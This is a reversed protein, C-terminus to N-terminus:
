RLMAWIVVVATSSRMDLVVWGKGLSLHRCFSSQKKEWAAKLFLAQNSGLRLDAPDWVLTPRGGRGGALVWLGWMPGDVVARISGSAKLSVSFGPEQLRHCCYVSDHGSTLHFWGQGNHSKWFSIFQLTCKLIVKLTQDARLKFLLQEIQWLLIYIGEKELLNSPLQFFWSAINGELSAPSLVNRSRASSDRFPLIKWTVFQTVNLIM